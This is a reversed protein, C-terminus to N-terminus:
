DISADLIICNWLMYRLFNIPVVISKDSDM